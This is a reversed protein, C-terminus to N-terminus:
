FATGNLRTAVIQVTNVCRHCVRNELSAQIWDREGVEQTSNPTHSWLANAGCVSKGSLFFCVLSFMHDFFWGITDIIKREEM